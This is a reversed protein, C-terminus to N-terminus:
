IVDSFDRMVVRKGHSHKEIHEVALEASDEDLDLWFEELDKDEQQLNLASNPKAVFCDFLIKGERNLCM